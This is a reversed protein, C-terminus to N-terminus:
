DVTTIVAVEPVTECDTLKWSVTCYGYRAVEFGAEEEVERAISGSIDVMGDRLDDLDPTGSPFYVRGGNATHAAMEGLVFAGDNSRLAGMGFGNFVTHDPFGQDRWTLFSPGDPGQPFSLEARDRSGVAVLKWGARQSSAM